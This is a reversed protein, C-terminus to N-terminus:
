RRAAYLARAEGVAASVIDSGTWTVTESMLWNTRGATVKVQESAVCHLRPAVGAGSDTVLRLRMGAGVLVCVRRYPHWM